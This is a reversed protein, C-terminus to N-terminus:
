SKTGSKKSLPHHTHVLEKLHEDFVHTYIQTTAIDSHGLLEQIVRLDAGHHLLHSAFSHRLVHPSIKRAPIGASTALIKLLQGFRQRTLHGEKGSSPFVWPSPPSSLFHGSDHLYRELAHVAKPHLPVLREKQGKGKIIFFNKVTISTGKRHIRLAKIPLSVLESVRLGTAYLIELLTYLRQGDPSTDQEAVELLRSVEEEMLYKPLKEPLRPGEIGLSPNDKCIHELCLFRYYQRISSLRRAITQSSFGRRSLSALYQRIHPTTAKLLTAGKKTLFVKIDELDRRYSDITNEAAAREAVMM